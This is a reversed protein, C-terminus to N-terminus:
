MCGNRVLYQVFNNILHLLWRSTNQRESFIGLM